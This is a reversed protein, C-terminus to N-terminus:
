KGSIQPAVMSQPSALAKAMAALATPNVTELSQTEILGREHMAIAIRSYVDRWAAFGSAALYYGQKGHDPLEGKM